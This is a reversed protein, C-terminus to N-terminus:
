EIGRYPRVEHFKELVRRGREEKEKCALLNTLEDNTFLVLRPLIIPNSIQVTRITQRLRTLQRNTLDNSIIVCIIDHDRLFAPKAFIDGNIDRVVTPLSNVFDQPSSVTVDIVRAVLFNDFYEQEYSAALDFYHPTLSQQGQLSIMYHIRDLEYGADLLLKEFGLGTYIRNAIYGCLKTDLEDITVEREPFMFTMFDIWFNQVLSLGVKEGKSVFEMLTKETKKIEHERFLKSKSIRSIISNVVWRGVKEGTEKAATTGLSVLFQQIQV